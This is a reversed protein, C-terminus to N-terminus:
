SNNSSVIIARGTYGAKFTELPVFRSVWNQELKKSTHHVYFGIISDEVMRYGVVVALHGGYKKWFLIKEKLSKRPNFAWKISIIPVASADVATVLAEHNMQRQQASVDFTSALRVLGEHSWGKADTYAGLQQGETILKITSIHQGILYQIAMQLCLVGCSSREWYEAEDRSSFGLNKWDDLNWHQTSFPVKLVKEKM